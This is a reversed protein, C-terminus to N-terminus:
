ASKIAAHSAGAYDSDRPFWAGQAADRAIGAAACRRWQGGIERGNGVSWDRGPVGRCVWRYIVRMNGKQGGIEIPKIQSAKSGAPPSGFYICRVAGMTSLMKSPDPTDM